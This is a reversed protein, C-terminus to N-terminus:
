RARGEPAPGAPAEGAEGAEDATAFTAEITAAVQAVVGPPLLHACAEFLETAPPLVGDVARAFMGDDMWAAVARTPLGPLADDPGDHADLAAADAAEPTPTVDAAGPTPTLGASLAAVTAPLHFRLRPWPWRAALRGAAAALGAPTAAGAGAEAWAPHLAAVSPWARGEPSGGPPPAAAASAVVRDLWLAVWYGTTDDPPPPTPLRLARRLSDGVLGSPPEDITEARRGRRVVSVARGDRAVFATVRVGAPRHRRARGGGAQGGGDPIVSGAVHLGVAWWHDPAVFGLLADHLDVGGLDVWGMAPEAPETRAGTSPGSPGAAGASPEASPSPSRSSTPRPAPLFVLVPDGPPGGALAVDLDAAARALVDGTPRARGRGADGVGPPRTPPPGAAPPRRRPLTRDSPRFPVDAFPGSGPM